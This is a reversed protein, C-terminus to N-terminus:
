WRRWLKCFFMHVTPFSTHAAGCECDKTREGFLEAWTKCDISYSPDYSPLESFSLIQDVQNTPDTDYFVWEYNRGLYNILKPFEDLPQYWTIEKTDILGFKVRLRM